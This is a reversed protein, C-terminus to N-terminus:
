KRLSYCLNEKGEAALLDWLELLKGKETDLLLGPGPHASEAFSESLSSLDSTIAAVAGIDDNFLICM